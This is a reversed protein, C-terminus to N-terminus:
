HDFPPQNKISLLADILKAFDEKSYDGQAQVVGTFPLVPCKVSQRIVGIVERGIAGPINVDCVIADFGCNVTLQRMAEAATTAVTVNMDLTKVSRIFLEVDAPDDDVILINM